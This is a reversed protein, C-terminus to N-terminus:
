KKIQNRALFTFQMFYMQWEKDNSQYQNNGYYYDVWLERARAVEKLTSYKRHSALTLDFLELSREFALWSTTKDKQKWDLTRFVESGVNALQEAINFRKWRRISLEKHHRLKM